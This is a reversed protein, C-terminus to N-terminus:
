DEDNMNNSNKTLLSEFYEARKNRIEDKDREIEEKEENEEIMSNGKDGIISLWIKRPTKELRTKAITYDKEDKKGKRNVYSCNTMVIHKEWPGTRACLAYFTSLETWRVCHPRRKDKPPSRYKAQVAYYKKGIRAVIDIGVDNKPKLSFKDLLDTPTDNLLWADDYGIAKLYMVCFTEFVDGKAKTTRRKLQSINNCPKDIYVKLRDLISNFIDADMKTLGYRICSEIEKTLNM